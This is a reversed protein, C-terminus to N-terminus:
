DVGAPRGGNDALVGPIPRGRGRRRRGAAARVGVEPLLWVRGYRRGPLRGSALGQRVAQASVGLVEAAETVTVLADSSPLYVRFPRGTTAPACGAAREQALRLVTRLYALADAAASGGDRHAAQGTAADIALACLRVGASSLVVRGDPGSLEAPPEAPM